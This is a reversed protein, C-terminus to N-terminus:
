MESPMDIALIEFAKKLTEATKEVLSLRFARLAENSEELLKPTHVYFTSFTTALEYAYIALLHPKYKETVARVSEEFRALKLLLLRDFESTEVDALTDWKIGAEQAKALVKTARVYAYQIYPGSHGEFNLAKDWDFTIDKERDQM